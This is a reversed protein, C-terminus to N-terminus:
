AHHADVASVWWDLPSHGMARSMEALLSGLSWLFAVQCPSCKRVTIGSRRGTRQVRICPPHLFLVSMWEFRSHMRMGSRWVDRMGGSRRRAVCGAPRFRCNAQSTHQPVQPADRWDLARWRPSEWPAGGSGFGPLLQALSATQPRRLGRQASIVALRSRLAGAVGCQSVCTQRRPRLVRDGRQRAVSAVSRMAVSRTPSWDTPQTGFFRMILLAIPRGALYM